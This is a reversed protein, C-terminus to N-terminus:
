FVESLLSSFYPFMVIMFILSLALFLAMKYNELKRNTEKNEFEKIVLLKRYSRAAKLPEERIFKEEEAILYK